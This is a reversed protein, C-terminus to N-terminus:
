GVKKITLSMTWDAFNGDVTRALWKSKNGRKDTWEVINTNYYMPIWMIKRSREIGRDRDDALYTNVLQNARAQTVPSMENISHVQARTFGTKNSSISDSTSVDSSALIEIDNEAGEPRGKYYVITRNYAEGSSDDETLSDDLVISRSDREDITDDVSRSKPATYAGVTIRGHSDCDLRNNSRDVLDFMITLISDDVEYVINSGITSNKSGPLFAYKRGCVNCVAAFANQFKVGSGIGYHRAARDESVSWLVSQLDYTALISNEGVIERQIHSIVFTGLEDKTGDTKDAVLRIWSGDPFDPDLVSISASVRTDSDYGWTISGEQQVNKIECRVLDLNHSDIAYARLTPVYAPDRWSEYDLM